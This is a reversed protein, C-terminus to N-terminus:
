GNKNIIRLPIAVPAHVGRNNQYEFVQYAECKYDMDFIGISAKELSKQLKAAEELSVKELKQSFFDFAEKIKEQSITEANKDGCSFNIILQKFYDDDGDVASFSGSLYTECIDAINENKTTKVKALAALFLVATTLRQKGDIVFYEGDAYDHEFIFLGLYYPGGNQEVLDDYFQSYQEQGWCYASHYV